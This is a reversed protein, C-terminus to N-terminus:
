VRRYIPGRRMVPELIAGRLDWDAEDPYLPNAPQGPYGIRKRVKPSMFYAGSALLALVDFGARDDRYLREIERAPDQGDAAALVRGLEPELDPRARLARDLWRGEVGIESPSPMGEEGPLLVDALGAFTEREARTM